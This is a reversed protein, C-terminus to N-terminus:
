VAVFDIGPKLGSFGDCISLVSRLDQAGIDSMLWEPLGYLCTM